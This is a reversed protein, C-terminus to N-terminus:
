WIHDSQDGKNQRNVTTAFIIVFPQFKDYINGLLSVVLRFRIITIQGYLRESYIFVQSFRSLVSVIKEYKGSYGEIGHLKQLFFRRCTRELFTM